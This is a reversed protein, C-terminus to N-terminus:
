RNKNRKNSVVKMEAEVPENEALANILKIEGYHREYEAINASLLNSLAKAFEKAMNIKVKQEVIPEGELTSDIIEGFTLNIDWLSLGMVVNNAYIKIFKESKESQQEVSNRLGLELREQKEM